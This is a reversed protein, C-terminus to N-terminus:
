RSVLNKLQWLWSRNKKLVLYLEKNGGFNSFFREVGADMSGEFDFIAQGNQRAFKIAHWLLLTMARYGQGAPNQGGMLYYSTDCDWVQWIVADIGNGARASWLASAGMKELAAQMEKLKALPCTARRGKARLTERHFAFLDDMQAEARQITYESEAQRINKRTSERMQALLKEEGERLNLRFTQQVGCTLGHQRFLGPQRNGPAMALHWVAADPIQSLLSQITEYEFREKRTEKLDAPYFVVPGLYPTMPPTRLLTVGWKTEQPFAWIGSVSDGNYAIAADWAPCVVDLWAPRMFLPAAASGSCFAIYKEKQTMEEFM